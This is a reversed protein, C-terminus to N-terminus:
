ITKFHEESMKLLDSAAMNLHKAIRRLTLLSPESRGRFLAILTAKALKREEYIEKFPVEGSENVMMSRLFAWRHISQKKM